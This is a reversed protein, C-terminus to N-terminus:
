LPRDIIRRAINPAPSETRIATPQLLWTLTPLRPPMSPPGPESSPAVVASAVFEDLPAPVSSPPVRSVEVLPVGSADGSPV